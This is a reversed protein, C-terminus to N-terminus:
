EAVVLRKEERWGWWALAAAMNIMALVLIVCGPWGAHWVTLGPLVAGLSGGVYYCCVYIGVATAKAERAAQGVFGM